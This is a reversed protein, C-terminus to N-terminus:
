GALRLVLLAGPAMWIVWTYIRGVRNRVQGAFFM